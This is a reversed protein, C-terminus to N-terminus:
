AAARRDGEDALRDDTEFVVAPRLIEGRAFNALPEPRWALVREALPRLENCALFWAGIADNVWGMFALWLESTSSGFPVNPPFWAPVAPPVLLMLLGLFLFGCANATTM